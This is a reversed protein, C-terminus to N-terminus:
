GFVIDAFRSGRDLGLRRRDSLLLEADGAARADVLVRGKAMRVFHDHPRFPASPAARQHDMFEFYVTTLAGDVKALAGGPKVAPIGPHTGPLRVDLGSAVSATMVVVASLLLTLPLRRSLKTTM